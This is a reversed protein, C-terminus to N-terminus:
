PFGRWRLYSPGINSLPGVMFPTLARSARAFAELQGQKRYTWSLGLKHRLAPSLLGIAGLAALGGFPQARLTTLFEAIATDNALTTAIMDDRYEVYGNWTDPLGVAGVIEGVALTEQWLGDREQPTLPHAFWEIGTIASDALTAQVWSWAQQEFADYSRGDAREGRIATHRKRLAAGTREAADQGGFAMLYLYDVSRLLRGWPDSAYDSHDRVGAAVTPHALQLLLAYGAANLIRPDGGYRWTLSGPGPAKPSRGPKWERASSGGIDRSYENM